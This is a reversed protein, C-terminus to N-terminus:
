PVRVVLEDSFLSENPTPAADVATVVYYYTTGRAVTRDAYTAGRIPQPTLRRYATHPVESRYVHYGALDPESNADWILSVEARTAAAQLNAPAAPPTIDRPTAAAMNSNGSEQWPPAENEVARVVYFYTRGDALGGDAYRPEPVPQPNIPQEPFAGPQESRYINYGRVAPLPTGDARTTPAAWALDVRGEGATGRLDGPPSPPMELDMRALNSPLSQFGRRDRSVVRYDYRRGYALGRGHDDDQFAYLSGEVRANEPREGRITAVLAFGELDRRGESAPAGPVLPASRRYLRFDLSERLPTGDEYRTPRSWTLVVSNAQPAAGLDAVPEAAATRPVVVPGRRGCGLATVGCVLTVAIALQWNGIALRPRREAGGDLPPFPASRAGVVM